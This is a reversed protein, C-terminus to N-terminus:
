LKETLYSEEFVKKEAELTYLFAFYLCFFYSQSCLYCCQIKNVCLYIEGEYIVLSTIRVIITKSLLPQSQSCTNLM